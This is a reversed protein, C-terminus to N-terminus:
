HYSVTHCVTSPVVTWGVLSVEGPKIGGPTFITPATTALLHSHLQIAKSLPLTQALPLLPHSVDPSLLLQHLKKRGHLNGVRHKAATESPLPKHKFFTTWTWCKLWSGVSSQGQSALYESQLCELTCSFQVCREFQTTCYSLEGQATFSFFILM